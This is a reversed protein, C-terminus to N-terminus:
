TDQGPVPHYNGGEDVTGIIKCAEPLHSAPDRLRKLRLDRQKEWHSIFPRFKVLLDDLSKPSVFKLDKNTSLRNLLRKFVGGPKAYQHDRRILSFQWIHYAALDAAQLQKYTKRSAFVLPEGLRDKNKFTSVPSILFDFLEEAYPKYEDQKDMVVFCQNRAPTHYIVHELMSRFGLFWPATPKGSVKTFKLRVGDLVGGTLHKRENESHAFFAETDIGCGILWVKCDDIADILDNVFDDRKTSGWHFVKSKPAPNYFERAHFGEDLMDYESLVGEWKRALRDLQSATGVYGALVCTRPDSIGSEDIFSKYISFM